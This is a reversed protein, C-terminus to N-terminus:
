NGDPLAIGRFVLENKTLTGTKDCFLYEVQGLEEHLNLTNCKAQKIENMLYDPEMMWADAEIFNTYFMKSLEIIVLLDLPVFSNVVLYFRFFAQFTWFSLADKNVTPVVVGDIVLDEIPNIGEYLYNRHWNSHNFSMSGLAGIITCTLSLCLNGVLLVNLVKEFRSRKFQYGGLNMILKSESGTHVVIALVYESNEIFSGRHLFQNLDLSYKKSNGDEMHHIM